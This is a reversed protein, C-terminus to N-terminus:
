MDRPNIGDFPCEFDDNMPENPHNRKYKTIHEIGAQSMGQPWKYESFDGHGRKVDHKIFLDRTAESWKTHNCAAGSGLLFQPKAMEENYKRRFVEADSASNNSARIIARPVAGRRVIQGFGAEGKKPLSFLNMQESTVGFNTATSSSGSSTWGASVDPRVGPALSHKSAGQQNMDLDSSSATRKGNGNKLQLYAVLRANSASKIVDGSSARVNNAKQLRDTEVKSLFKIQASTFSQRTAADSEGKFAETMDNVVRQDFAADASAEENKAADRSATQEAASSRLSAITEADTKAQQEAVKAKADAAELAYKADNSAMEMTQISQLFADKAEPTMVDLSHIAAHASMSAPFAASLEDESPVSGGAAAPAAAAPVAAVPAAPTATSLADAVISMTAPFISLSVVGKTEEEHSALITYGDRRDVTYLNTNTDRYMMGINKDNSFQDQDQDQDQNQDQDPNKESNTLQVDSVNTCGDGIISSESGRAGRACLSVELPTNTNPNHQLSVGNVIDNKIYYMCRRGEVTDDKVDLRVDWSGDSCLREDGVVGICTKDDHSYRLPIGVISKRMQEVENKDLQLEQQRNDPFGRFSKTKVVTPAIKAWVRHITMDDGDIVCTTCNCM